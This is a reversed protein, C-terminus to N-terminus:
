STFGVKVYAKPAGAGPLEVTKIGRLRGLETRVKGASAPSLSSKNSAKLILPNIKTTDYVEGPVMMSYVSQARAIDRPLDPREEDELQPAPPADGNFQFLRTFDGKAEDWCISEANPSISNRTEIAMTMEGRSGSGTPTLVIGSDYWGRYASAGRIREFPGDSQGRVKSPKRTHHILVISCNFDAALQDFARLMARVETNDNENASSFDAVPDVFVVDPRNYDLARRIALNDMPNLIDLNLRGTVVMNQRLQVLDEESTSQVLPRLRDALWAEHVEANFYFCKLPRSVEGGLFPRGTALARALALALRTKGTKPDAAILVRAGRFLVAGHWFYEPKKPPNDMMDGVTWANFSGPSTVIGTLSSGPTAAELTRAPAIQEALVPKDPNNRTHTAIVSALTTDLESQPLPNPNTSNWAELMAKIERMSHNATIWQGALSAAAMNRGGEAVPAGSAKLQTNRVDIMFGGGATTSSGYHGRMKALDAHSLSPLDDPGQADYLEDKVWEYVAGSAHVSPPAVVYGGNGRTDLKTGPNAANRVDIDNSRYYFQVGRSTKVRWPTPTINEEVWKVADASDADLVYVQPGTIIAINANPWCTWWDTIEQETPATQQYKAWPVLPKKPWKEAAVAADGDCADIFYQPIWTGPSGLPIVHFGQEYLSLAEHLMLKSDDTM